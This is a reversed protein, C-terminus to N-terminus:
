GNGRLQRARLMVLEKGVGWIKRANATKSSGSLRPLCEVTVVKTQLGARLARIPFEFNLFFTDSALQKPDLLSRRFLYPGDSRMRVGHILLILTRVGFSLVKRELGDERRDYVSFVIDTSPDAADLLTRLATTPIQGDAPMFTVLDGKAYTTGTKIGAGMGRNTEHRVVCFPIGKLAERAAQSTNDNSGDDVFIVEIASPRVKTEPQETIWQRLEAMTTPVNEEENYALVIISLLPASSETM